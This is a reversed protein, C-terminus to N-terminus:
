ILMNKLIPSIVWCTSCKSHLHPSSSPYRTGMYLNPSHPPQKYIWHPFHLNFIEPALHSTLSVLHNVSLGQRLVYPLHLRPLCRYDVESSWGCTSGYVCCACVGEEFFHTLPLQVPKCERCHLFTWNRGHTLSGTGWRKESSKKRCNNQTYM